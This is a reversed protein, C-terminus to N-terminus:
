KWGLRELIGRGMVWEKDEASLFDLTETFHSIRQKYTAKNYSNTMDTGWYCRKPGFADFLKRIHVAMDRFPYAEASYFPTTSLKVSVNPYKALAATEDIADKLKGSKVIEGTVGLHDAIMTLGPHKEAIPAFNPMPAGYFMIPLNYKEALPWFWDVTGDTLWHWQHPHFTLRIGLMNPQKKWDPLLKATNPDAVPIRGVVAFRTPYRRVAELAYDNRDGEWSPPVIIARDVGAEDMMPVLTEILFPEPLQAVRNPLWPRDPTNAPWLHVQADVIM